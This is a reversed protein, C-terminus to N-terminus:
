KFLYQIQKEVGTQHLQTLASDDLAAIIVYTVTDVLAEPMNIQQLSEM